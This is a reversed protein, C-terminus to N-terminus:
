ERVVAETDDTIDVVRSPPQKPLTGSDIIMDPADPSGEFQELITAADYPNPAGHVNASTTSLPKGFARVLALAVPHPSIRVGITIGKAKEGKKEKGVLPLTFPFLSFPADERLPLILTLPGPLYEKALAEARDSWEAYQKAENVSAFLASVPQTEGRQKIRFLHAIAQPNTMDCALGYCTETAHAICGGQALTELAKPLWDEDSKMVFM